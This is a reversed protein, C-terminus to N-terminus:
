DSERGTSARDRGFVLEEALGGALYVQIQHILSQRTDHIAHPFTFGGASSHAIKPELQLPALGFLSM